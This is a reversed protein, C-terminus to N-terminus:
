HYHGEQTPSITPVQSINENGENTQQPPEMKHM